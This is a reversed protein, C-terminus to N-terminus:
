VSLSFPTHRHAPNGDIFIGTQAIAGTHINAGCARNREIVVPKGLVHGFAAADEAAVADGDARTQSQMM